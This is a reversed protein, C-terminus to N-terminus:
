PQLEGGAYVWMRADITKGKAQMPFTTDDTAVLHSARVRGATLEYLPTVLDAVDECWISQTARGIEFGQREFIDELRYLPLYDAFRSTVIYSLLGPGALGKGIAGAPKATSVIRAGDGSADCAQCAYKKRVHQLREFRGPIYEVQWSEDVGIEM